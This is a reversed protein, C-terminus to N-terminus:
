GLTSYEGQELPWTSFPPLYLLFCCLRFNLPGLEWHQHGAVFLPDLGMRGCLQSGVQNQLALSKEVPFHGEFVHKSCSFEGTPLDPPGSCLGPM